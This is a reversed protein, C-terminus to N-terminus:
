GIGHGDGKVRVSIVVMWSERISLIVRGWERVSVMVM